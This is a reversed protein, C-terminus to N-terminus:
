AQAKDLAQTLAQFVGEIDLAGTDVIVADDAAKLPAVARNRDQEDRTRVQETIQALDAEQGMEVLQDYRRKARIEPAADLFFKCPAQAFVVTGMDRGEAVLSTRRGVDQQADKLFSRVAPLKAVRSAMLGVEETRIEDGIPKDNLSLISQSGSGALSFRLASLRQQLSEEPLADADPGLALATARFMAGTDLYAVGLYDAVRKALTTKGVGAPGDLTVIMSDAM